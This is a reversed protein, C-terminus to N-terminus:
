GRGADTDADTAGPDIADREGAVATALADLLDEAYREMSFRTLVAADVAGAREPRAEAIAAALGDAPATMLRPLDLETLVGVPTAFAASGLALAEFVVTPYAEADSCLLLGDAAWLAALAAGHDVEGALTVRDGVGRERVARQLAAREPGDGLVLLHYAEPLAAAVGVARVPAKIPVLRGAFVLLRDEEPVGYRERVAAPDAEAAARVREAHLIGHLVRVDENGARELVRKVRESRCFVVEGTCFRFNVRERVFAPTWRFESRVSPTYGVLTVLPRDYVAALAKGVWHTSASASHVADFRLRSLVALAYVFLAVSFALRFLRALGTYAPLAAPKAPFPRRVDVGDVRERRPTGERRPTLVTVAHGREAALQCFRWREHAGGSVMPYFDEALVVVHM